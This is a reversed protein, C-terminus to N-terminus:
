WCHPQMGMETEQATRLMWTAVEATTAERMVARITAAFEAANGLGDFLTVFCRAAHGRAKINRCALMALQAHDPIVPMNLLVMPTERNLVM